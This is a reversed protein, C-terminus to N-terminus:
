LFIYFVLTNGDGHQKKQTKVGVSVNIEFCEAANLLSVQIGTTVLIVEMLNKEMNNDFVNILSDGNQFHDSPCLRCVNQIEAAEM